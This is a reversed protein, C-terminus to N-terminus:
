MAMMTSESSAPPKGGGSGGSWSRRRRPVVPVMEAQVDDEHSGSVGRAMRTAKGPPDIIVIEYSDTEVDAEKIVETAQGPSAEDSNKSNQSNVSQMSYSARMRQYWDFNRDHEENQQREEDRAHKIVQLFKSAGRFRAGPSPPSGPEESSLSSRLSEATGSRKLGAMARSENARSHAHKAMNSLGRLPVRLAKSEITHITQSSRPSLDRQGAAAAATRQLTEPIYVGAGGAPIMAQQLMPFLDGMAKDFEEMFDALRDMMWRNQYMMENVELSKASGRMRMCGEVFDGLEIANNGEADLLKFLSWAEHVQLDLAHFYAKVRDEKIYKEFDPLTISGSQGSDIDEFLKRLREAYEDLSNLQTEIVEDQDAEASEIAGQCFVGTVVNMVAFSAFVIYLTFLMLYIVSLQGLPKAVDAWNVGGTISLFLTMVTVIVTPYYEVMIAYSADDLTQAQFEETAAQTFIIAFLYMIILLLLIAWTLSRLTGFISAILIRLSRFFRMIRIIRIVKVIRVFRILRVISVNKLSDNSIVEEMIVEVMSGSVICFDLINWSSDQMWFFRLGAAWIRLILEILFAVTFFYQTWHVAAKLDKDNSSSTDVQIGIYIANLVIVTAFIYDFTASQVFSLLRSQKKVTVNSDIESVGDATSGSQRTKEVAAEKRQSEADNYRISHRKAGSRTMGVGAEGADNNSAAPMSNVSAAKAPDDSVQEDWQVHRPSVIVVNADIRSGTPSDKTQVKTAASDPLAADLALGPPRFRRGGGLSRSSYPSLPSRPEEEVVSSSSRAGASAQRQLLRSTPAEIEVVEAASEQLQVRPAPAATAAEAPAQQPQQQQVIAGDPLMQQKRPSPLRPADLALAGKDVLAALQKDLKELLTHSDTITRLHEALDGLIQQRCQRFKEDVHDQFKVSWSPRPTSDRQFAFPQCMLDFTHGPEERLKEEAVPPAEAAKLVEGLTGSATRSAMTSERPCVPLGHLDQEM